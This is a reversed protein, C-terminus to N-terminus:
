RSQYGTREELITVSMHRSQTRLTKGRCAGEANNKELETEPQVKKGTNERELKPLRGAEGSQMEREEESL